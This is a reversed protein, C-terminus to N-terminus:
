QRLRPGKWTLEYNLQVRYETYSTVSNNLYQDVFAVRNRLNFPKLWGPANAMADGRIALELDYEWNNSLSTHTLPNVSNGGYTATALFIVGPLGAGKFDYSAGATVAMEGARNFDLSQM